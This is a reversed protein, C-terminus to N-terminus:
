EEGKKSGVAQMWEDVVQFVRRYLTEEEPTLRRLVDGELRKAALAIVKMMRMTAVDLLRKQVLEDRIDRSVEAYFHKPLPQLDSPNTKERWEFQMLQNSLPPKSVYEAYGSSVLVDAVWNWVSIVVGKKLDEFTKGGFDLAPIDSTLVIKSFSHLYDLVNEDFIEAVRRLM